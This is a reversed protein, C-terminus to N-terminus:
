NKTAHLVVKLTFFLGQHRKKVEFDQLVAPMLAQTLKRIWTMLLPHSTAYGSLMWEHNLQELHILVLGDPVLRLITELCLLSTKESVTLYKKEQQLFLLHRQWDVHAATLRHRTLAPHHRLRYAARWRQHDFAQVRIRQAVMKNLALCGMGAVVLSWLLFIMLRKKLRTCSAERYPYLNM